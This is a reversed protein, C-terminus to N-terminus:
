GVTVGLSAAIGDMRPQGLVQVLAGWGALFRPNNVFMPDKQAQLSSWLLWFQVNASVAAQIKAADDATFQAMLDQSLVQAPDPASADFAAVIAAGASIQAATVGPAYQVAWTSRDSADPMSVSVVPAVPLLKEHLTAAPIKM